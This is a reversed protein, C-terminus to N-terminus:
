GGQGLTGAPVFKELADLVRTSGPYKQGYTNCTMMLSQHGIFTQVEWPTLGENLLLSVVSGRLDHIRISSLGVVALLPKFWRASLNKRDLPTGQKSPFIWSPLEKADGSLAMQRTVYLEELCRKLPPTLQLTHWRGNKPTVKRGQFWTGRVTLLNQGWDVDGWELALVEGIRLGTQLLCLLVPYKDPFKEACSALLRKAQEPALIQGQFPQEGRPFVQRGLHSAPNVTLRGEEVAEQLIRRLPALINHLTNKRFGRKNLRLFFDKLEARSIEHLPRNGFAPLLFRTLNDKWGNATSPKISGQLWFELQRQAYTGFTEEAPKEWFGWGELAVRYDFEKAKLTAVRRDKFKWCKRRNKQHLTVRWCTGDKRITAGM